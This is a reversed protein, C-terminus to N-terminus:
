KDSEPEDPEEDDDEDEDNDDDEDDEEDEDEDNDDGLFEGMASILASEYFFVLEDIVGEQYANWAATDSGGAEKIADANEKLWKRKKGAFGAMEDRVAKELTPRVEGTDIAREAIANMDLEIRPRRAERGDLYFAMYEKEKDM